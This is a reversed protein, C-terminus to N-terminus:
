MNDKNNPIKENEKEKVFLEMEALRKRQQYKAQAISLKRKTEESKPKRMKAKHEETLKRGKHALGIKRKHEESFKMGKHGISMKKRTEASMKRGYM